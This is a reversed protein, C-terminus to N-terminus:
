RVFQSNPIQGLQYREGGRIPVYAGVHGNVPSKATTSYTVERIDSIATYDGKGYKVYTLKSDHYKGWADYGPSTLLGYEYTLPTLKPGAAQVGGAVSLAYSTLLNSNPDPNGSRHEAHWIKGADQVSINTSEPLDSPGFAHAWETQDYTQALPDYDLLGGGAIVEEPEYHQAAEAKTAYTPAIVDSDWLVSTVGAQKQKVALTTAQTAATSTDSSYPSDVVSTHCGSIIKELLKASPTTEATNPYVVAVKRVKAQLDSTGAYRAKGGAMRRCWWQGTIEAQTDGGMLTDYHYPRLSDNFQDTFNWGGWSIVGKRALEDFFASENTDNDWFVAFPHYKAVLSDADTRFCSDVPPSPNCTGQDYVFNIKRGYLQYHSDVYQQIAGLMAQEAQPTIYTGTSRLIADVAANEANRYMVITVANSTVGASTAGGNPGSYKKVCPPHELLGTICFQGGSSTKTSGSKGKGSGASGASGASGGGAGAAAGSGGGTAGSSTGGAGVGGSAGASGGSGGSGSFSSSGSGSGSGSATGSGGSFGSGSSGGTFQGGLATNSSSPHSPALLVVLLQVAILLGFLGYRRLAVM